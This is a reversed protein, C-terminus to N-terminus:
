RGSDAQLQAAQEAPTRQGGMVAQGGSMITELFAMPQFTSAAIGVSAGETALAHLTEFVLRERDNLELDTIDVLVPPVWAEAGSRGSLEVWTRAADPENLAAVLKTAADLNASGANVGWVSGLNMSYTADYEGIRPFPTLTLSADFDPDLMSALVSVHIVAIASEDVFQQLHTEHDVGNLDPPYCGADRMDIFARQYTEIVGSSDWSGVGDRELANVADVGMVSTLPMGFLYYYQWGPNGSFAFPTYGAAAAAACYELVGDFGDPIELGADSLLQENWWVAGFEINGPVAFVRGDLTTMDLATPYYSQDWGGAQAVDSLDAALGSEFLERVFSVESFFVDPGGRSALAAGLVTEMNAYYEITVETGPNAAEYDAVISELAANQVGSGIDSGQMYILLETADLDDLDDGPACAALVSVLAMSAVIAAARRRTADRGGIQVGGRPCKPQTLLTEPVPDELNTDSHFRGAADDTPYESADDRQLRYRIEIQRRDKANDIGLGLSGRAGRLYPLIPRERQM